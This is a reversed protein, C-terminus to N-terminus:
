GEPKVTEPVPDFAIGEFTEPTAHRLATLWVEEDFHQRFLKALDFAKDPEMCRSVAYTEVLDWYHEPMDPDAADSITTPQKIYWLEYTDGNTQTVASVEFYLDNNEIYWFPNSESPVIIADARLADKEMAPWHTAVIGKYKVLRARLFDTPLDYNSTGGVLTDSEVKTLHPLANDALLHALEMFGENVFAYIEADSWLDGNRDGLRARITAKIDKANDGTAM